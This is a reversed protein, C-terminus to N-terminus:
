IPPYRYAEGRNIVKAGINSRNFAPKWEGGGPIIMKLNLSNDGNTFTYTGTAVYVSDITRSKYSGRISIAGSRASEIRLSLIGASTDQPPAYGLIGASDVSLNRMTGDIEIEFGLTDASDFWVGFLKEDLPSTSSEKHCGWSFIFALAILAIFPPRARTHLQFM